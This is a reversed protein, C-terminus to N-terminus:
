CRVVNCLMAEFQEAPMPRAFLYGQGYDCGVALLLDRQAPTEVGEAIVKLGLKHAMVVIAECLAQDAPDEVMNRVFSQDIKLYDIDFKKLYSLASYGTGFDDISVQIGADRYHLLQKATDDDRNLLLGETIEITICRGALGIERLHNVWTEQSLGKSRFQVPSKNVSIQFHSNGTMESWRRAYRASEMFVWEGIPNIMGTEEALPIFEMPSVLGRQPHQWRLLAEAKFINGSSLEVIPQFYVKFQQEALATNLEGIMRLRLLAAEQLAPTFFSFRNRGLGKAVYMAQDANQLLQDLNVADAPYITIGISASVHVVEDAFYYPEAMKVIIAQTIREVDSMEHLESLIVTFEDGGLRSVTDTKRVCSTLRKAAQVLLEDGVHHGLTDNVEKFRDLDIFLLALPLKDRDSKKIEQALREQLMHRNPLGTLSDFNAQKWIIEQSKKKDTIDSSLAVRRYVAGESDYITNISQYEAYLEGNKRRNWMEGQWRGTNNLERWMAQYFAADQRGSSLLRPDRGQVEAATYGTTDIFAQNVDLIHNEADVILMAESSQQYVLAALKLDEDNRKRETIDDFSAVMRGPAIRYARVEFAGHIQGGDYNVQQTSWEGGYKAIRTYQAPVETEKLQPFAQSITLGIFQRNDVGLIRDAAPNASIFILNDQQDLEYLHMGTPSNDLISQLVQREDELMNQALQLAFEQRKRESIDRIVSFVRPNGDLEIVRCNIEVPMVSGNKCLHASEFCAHGDRHLAAMREPVRSAYEPPDFESIRRGIMEAKSYGRQALGTANIDVIYGSMDLILLCDAAMDFLIGYQVQGNQTDEAQM